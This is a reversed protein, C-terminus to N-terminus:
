VDADQSVGNIVGTADTAVNTLHEARETTTVVNPDGHDRRFAGNRHHAVERSM